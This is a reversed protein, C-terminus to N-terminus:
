MGGIVGMNFGRDKFSPPGLRLSDTRAEPAGECVPHYRIHGQRRTPLVCRRVVRELGRHVPKDLLIGGEGEEGEGDESPRDEGRRGPLVSAQARHEELPHPRRSLTRCRGTLRMGVGIIAAAVGVLLLWITQDSPTGTFFASLRSGVSASAQIGFIILVVEVMLLAIGVVSQM